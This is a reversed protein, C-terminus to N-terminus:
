IDGMGLGGSSSTGGYVCLLIADLLLAVDLLLLSQGDGAGLLVDLLVLIEQCLFLLGWVLLELLWLCGLPHIFLSLCDFLLGLMLEAELLM